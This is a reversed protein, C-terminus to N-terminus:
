STRVKLDGHVINKSHIYKVGQLIQELISDADKEVQDYRETHLVINVEFKYVWLVSGETFCFGLGWKKRKAYSAINRLVAGNPHVVEAVVEPPSFFISLFFKFM